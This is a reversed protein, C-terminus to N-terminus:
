QNMEESLTGCLSKGQAIERLIVERTVLHDAARLVLRSLYQGRTASKPSLLCLTDYAERKLRVSIQVYEPKESSGLKVNM